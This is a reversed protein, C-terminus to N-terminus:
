RGALASRVIERTPAREPVRPVHLAHLTRFAMQPEICRNHSM